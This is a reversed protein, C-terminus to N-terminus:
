TLVVIVVLMDGNLQNKGRANTLHALTQFYCKINTLQQLPLATAQLIEVKSVFTISHSIVLKASTLVVQTGKM